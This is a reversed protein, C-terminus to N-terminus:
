GLTNLNPDAVAFLTAAAAVTAAMPAALSKTSKM